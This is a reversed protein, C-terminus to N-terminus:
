PTLLFGHEVGNIEGYGVIQGKKNIAAAHRLVWGSNKPIMNNLDQMHNTPTWLYAHTAGGTVTSEGTIQMSDSIYGASSSSGGPLTGIPLIEGTADWYVSVGNPYKKSTSM